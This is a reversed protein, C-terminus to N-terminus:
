GRDWQIQSDIAAITLPRSRDVCSEIIALTPITIDIPPTTGEEHRANTFEIAAPEVRDHSLRFFAGNM